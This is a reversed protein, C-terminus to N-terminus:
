KPKQSRGDWSAGMQQELRQLSEEIARLRADTSEAPAEQREMEVFRSAVVATFAGFLGIGFIMAVAAVWRGLDSAPVMDGYGVTTMTTLAWWLADGPTDIASNDEGREAVLIATASFTIAFLGVVALTVPAGVRLDRFLMRVVDSSMRLGRFLRAIRILRALRGWRFPEALLPIASALDIWGWTFFYRWRNTSIRMQYGFDILFLLCIGSDAILLAQAVDDPLPTVVTAGLLLLTLVSALFILIQWAISTKPPTPNM